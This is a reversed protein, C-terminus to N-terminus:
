AEETCVEIELQELGVAIHWKYRSSEGITLCVIHFACWGVLNHLEDDILAIGNSRIKRSVVIRFDICFHSASCADSCKSEFSARQEICSRREVVWGVVLGLPLLSCLSALIDEVVGGSPPQFEARVGVKPSMISEQIRFEDETDTTTLVIGELHGVVGDTHLVTGRAVAGGM